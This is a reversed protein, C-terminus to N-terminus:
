GRGKWTRSRCQYWEKRYPEGAKKWFLENWNILKIKGENTNMIGSEEYLSCGFHSM